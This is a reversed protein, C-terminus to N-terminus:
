ATFVSAPDTEDPLPFDAVMRAHDLSISLHLRVAKRWEPRLTLGLLRTGAAIFADLDDTESM